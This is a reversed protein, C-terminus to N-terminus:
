INTDTACPGIRTSLASCQKAEIIQSNIFQEVDARLLRISRGFRIRPVVSTGAKGEYWTTIALGSLAAAERITCFKTSKAAEM